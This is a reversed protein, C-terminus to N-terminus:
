LDFGEPSLGFTLRLLTADEAPAGALATEALAAHGISPDRLYACAIRGEADLRVFHWVEGEPAEAAGLGEGRERGLPTTLAGVEPLAQLLAIIRAAAAAIADLRLRMRTDACGGEEVRAEAAVPTPLGRRVDFAQGSARGVIGSAVALGAEVTGVRARGRLRPALRREYGRALSPLAAAVAEAAAGIGRVRAAGVGAGVGGARVVGRGFRHGFAAGMAERWAALLAFAQNGLRVAGAERAMGGLLALFAAIREAEGAVERLLAAPAPVETGSAQEVARAFATAHAVSSVAAVREVIASAATLDCGALSALLGRHGFGHAFEARAVRQGDVALRTRLLGEAVGVPGEELLAWSEDCDPRWEPPEPGRAPPGPRDRLPATAPWTGHDLLPRLDRAHMAEFGWLDRVIREYPSAAPLPGSLALYRGAEVAVTAILPRARDPHFLAHVQGNAEAWLALLPVAGGPRLGQRAGLDAALRQWAGAELVHRIGERRGTRISDVPDPPFLSRGSM